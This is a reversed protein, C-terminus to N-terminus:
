GVTVPENGSCKKIIRARRGKIKNITVIKNKYLEGVIDGHLSKGSRITVKSLVRYDIPNRPTPRMLKRPEDNAYPQLNYGIQRSLSLARKAEEISQFIILWCSQKKLPEVRVAFKFKLFNSRINGTRVVQNLPLTLLLSKPSEKSITMNSFGTTCSTESSTSSCITSAMARVKVLDAYSSKTGTGSKTLTKRNDSVGKLAISPEVFFSRRARVMPLKQLNSESSDSSFATSSRPSVESVGSRTSCESDSKVGPSLDMKVPGDEEKILYDMCPKNKAAQPASSGRPSTITKVPHDSETDMGSLGSLTSPTSPIVRPV